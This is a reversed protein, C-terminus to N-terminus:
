RIRLDEPLNKGHEGAAIRFLTNKVVHIDGGKERLQARLAQIQKVKLGRYETFIVGVSKEYRQRTAEITDAKRATPM